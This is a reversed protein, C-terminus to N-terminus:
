PANSYLTVRDRQSLFAPYDPHSICLLLENSINTGPQLLLSLLTKFMHSFTGTSCYLFILLWPLFTNIIFSNIISRIKNKPLFVLPTFCDLTFFFSYLYLSLLLTLITSYRHFQRYWCIQMSFIRYRFVALVSIESYSASTRGAYLPFSQRCASSSPRWEWFRFRLFRWPHFSKWPLGAQHSIQL